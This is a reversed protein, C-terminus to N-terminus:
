RSLGMSLSLFYVSISVLATTQWHKLTQETWRIKSRLILFIPILIGMEIGLNIYFYHNQWHPKGASPLLGIPAKILVSSFPWFLPLALVGVFWDMLPHSLGSLMVQWSGVYLKRAELGSWYLGIVTLVPLLLSSAIAHTIRVGENQAMNLTPVFYDIDPEWAIIILWVLWIFSGLRSSFPRHDPAIAESITIAALGHGIFSSM